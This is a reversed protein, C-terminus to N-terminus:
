DFNALDNLPVLRLTQADARLSIAPTALGGATALASAGAVTKLFTRRDMIHRMWCAIGVPASQATYPLRLRSLVTYNQSFFKYNSEFQLEDTGRETSWRNRSCPPPAPPAASVM